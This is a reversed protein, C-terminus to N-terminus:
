FWDVVKTPRGWAHCWLSPLAGRFSSRICHEIAEVVHQNPTLSFFVSISKNLM